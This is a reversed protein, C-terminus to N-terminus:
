NNMMFLVLVREAQDELLLFINMLKLLALVPCDFLGHMWLEVGNMARATYLSPGPYM